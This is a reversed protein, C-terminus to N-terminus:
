HPATAAVHTVASSHRAVGAQRARRVLAAGLPPFLPEGSGAVGPDAAAHDLEGPAKQPKLLLACQRSPVLGASGILRAPVRLVIITASARLSSMASQRKTVVPSVSSPTTKRGAPQFPSVPVLLVMAGIRRERQSEARSGFQRDSTAPLRSEFMASIGVSLIPGGGPAEGGIRM